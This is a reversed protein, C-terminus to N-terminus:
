LLFLSSIANAIKMDPVRMKQIVPLNKKTLRCIVANSFNIHVGKAASQMKGAQTANLPNSYELEKVTTEGSKLPNILKQTITKNETDYSIYGFMVGWLLPNIVVDQDLATEEKGEIESEMDIIDFCETMATVEALADEKNIKIERKM